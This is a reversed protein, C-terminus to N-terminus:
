HVLVATIAGGRVQPCSDHVRVCVCVGAVKNSSGSCHCLHTYAHTHRQTHTQIHTHMNTCTQMYTHTHTYMHTCMLLIHVSCTYVHICVHVSTLICTHTCSNLVYKYANYNTYTYELIHVHM